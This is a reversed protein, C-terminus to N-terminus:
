QSSLDLPADAYGAVVHWCLPGNEWLPMVKIVTSENVRIPEEELAMLARGIMISMLIRLDGGKEPNAPLLEGKEFVVKDGIVLDEEFRVLHGDSREAGLPAIDQAFGITHPGRATTAHRLGGTYQHNLTRYAGGVKVADIHPLEIGRFDEWGYRNVHLNFLDIQYNVLDVIRQNVLEFGEFSYMMEPNNESGGAMGVQECFYPKRPNNEDLKVIFGDEVSEELWDSQIKDYRTSEELYSIGGNFEDGFARDYIGDLFNNQATLGVEAGRRKRDEEDTYGIDTLKKYKEELVKKQEYFNKRRLEDMDVSAATNSASETNGGELVGSRVILAGSTAGLAVATGLVAAKFTNRAKNAENVRRAEERQDFQEQARRAEEAPDIDARRVM